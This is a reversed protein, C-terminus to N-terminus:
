RELEIVPGLHVATGAQFGPLDVVEVALKRTHGAPLLPVQKAMPSAQSGRLCLYAVQGTSSTQPTEEDKHAPYIPTLGLDPSPFFAETDEGSLHGRGRHVSRDGDGVQELLHDGHGAAALRSVSASRVNLILLTM